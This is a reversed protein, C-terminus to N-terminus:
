RTLDDAIGSLRAFDVAGVIRETFTGEADIAFLTPVYRIRYDSGIDGGDLLVPFSYGESGILDRMGGENNQPAVALVAAKDSAERYFRDLEPAM